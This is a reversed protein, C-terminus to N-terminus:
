ESSFHPLFLLLYSEYMSALSSTDSASFCRCLSPTGELLLLLFGKPSVTVFESISKSEKITLLCLRCCFDGVRELKSLEGVFQSTSNLRGGVGAM